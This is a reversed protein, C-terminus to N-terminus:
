VPHMRPIGSLLSWTDLTPGVPGLHSWINTVHVKSDPNACGNASNMDLIPDKNLTYFYRNEHLNLAIKSQFGVAGGGGWGRGNKRWYKSIASTVKTAKQIDLEHWGWNSGPWKLTTMLLSLIRKSTLCVNNKQDMKKNTKSYIGTWNPIGIFFFITFYDVCFHTYDHFSLYFVIHFRYSLGTYICNM